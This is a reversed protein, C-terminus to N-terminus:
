LDNEGILNLDTMLYLYQEILKPVEHKHFDVRARMRHHVDDIIMIYKGNHSSKLSYFGAIPVSVDSKRGLKKYERNFEFIADLIEITHARYRAKLAASDAM